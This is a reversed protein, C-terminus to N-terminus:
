SDPENAVANLYAYLTVKSVNMMDAVQEVSGRLLFAGYTELRAVARQKEDRKMTAIPTGIEREVDAVMRRLADHLGLPPQQPDADVRIQVSTAGSAFGARVLEGLSELVDSLEGTATTAFPGMDPALGAAEAVAVAAVVHPGPDGLVFPEIIFEVRVSKDM